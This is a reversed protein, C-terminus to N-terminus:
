PRYSLWTRAFATHHPSFQPEYYAELLIRMVEQLLKDSWSPMGLPRLKPRTPKEIYIRRVPTWHYREFRSAEIIAGIKSMSMGNVTEKTVGPTM